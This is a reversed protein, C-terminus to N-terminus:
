LGDNVRTLGRPPQLCSVRSAGLTRGMRMAGLDGNGEVPQARLIARVPDAAEDEIRAARAGAAAVEDGHLRGATVQQM